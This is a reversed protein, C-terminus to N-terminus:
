AEVLDEEDFDDDFDAMLAVTAYLTLCFLLFTIVHVATCWLCIADILYLEAYVLWLVFVLGMTVVVLRGWRVASSASRWMAPLNLVWVVVYYLLGLIAVPMGLFKSYQSTTVKVCNIAGTAPCALTTGSPDHFHEWTLYASVALAATALVLCSISLWKPVLSEESTDVPDGM